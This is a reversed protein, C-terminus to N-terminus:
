LKVYLFERCHMSRLRNGLGFNGMDMDMAVITVHYVVVVILTKENKKENLPISVFVIYVNDSLMFSICSVFEFDKLEQYHWKQTIM